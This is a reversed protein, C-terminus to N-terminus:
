TSAAERQPGTMDKFSVGQRVYFHQNMWKRWEPDDVPFTSKARQEPTLLGLWRVAALRVPETSVGTSRLPFLGPEAVGATTIGRFAEALGRSEAERSRRLNREAPSENAPGTSGPDGADPSPCVM